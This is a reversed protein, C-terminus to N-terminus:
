RGEGEVDKGRLPPTTRGKAESRRREADEYAKTDRVCLRVFDLLLLGAIWTIRIM